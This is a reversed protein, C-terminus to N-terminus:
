KQAPVKRNYENMAADVGQSIMIDVAKAAKEIAEDVLKRDETSFRGLVHDALDWGKPKAGVGVKIRLFKETGLQRIIDKIGNHGGASGQKRIRLQGPELDIDDYIVILETEPDIKFYNAMERVPGGSLNMFSLPKMLIVKEGGIMTKGYMANFKVGGQPVNYDEVLHDITDFGMNHRTAEYEGPIEWDWQQICIRTEQNFYVMEDKLPECEKADSAYLVIGEGQYETRNEFAVKATVEVWSGEKIHSANDSRCVYGLFTTDDACCTMAVRGPVFFKSGMGRPKMVRGKFRVTKGVYKEPNDMADVFWIGYDEPQIEIVPADIDFPMEDQFIDDMEGEEDEFIVEASQNAVKIGRRYAPLPDGEKCRNFVVMDTNRVMDMFLSKMNAMYVQYTTADVCTIEQEIGWGDPLEMQEFKSVLWMGNYEIVVREPQHIIDMAALRQPTLDEEDEIVEVVTNTLKLKDMDYEEEGEECLILLTKGDIAFYDQQLTFDLFTTKGSELFGTVLYIPVRIDDM